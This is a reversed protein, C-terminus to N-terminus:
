TRLRRANGEHLHGVRIRWVADPGDFALAFPDRLVLASRLLLIARLAALTTVNQPCRKAGTLRDVGRETLGGSTDRITWVREGCVMRLLSLPRLNTERITWAVGAVM